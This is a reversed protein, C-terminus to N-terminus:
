KRTYFLILYRIASASQGKQNRKAYKKMKQIEKIQIERETQQLQFEETQEHVNRELEVENANAVAAWNALPSPRREKKEKKTKSPSYAPPQVSDSVSGPFVPRGLSVTKNKLPMITIDQVAETHDFQITNNANKIMENIEMNRSDEPSLKNVLPPMDISITDKVPSDLTLDKAIFMLADHHKSQNPHNSSQSQKQLSQHYKLLKNVDNDSDGFGSEPEPSESKTKRSKESKQTDRRHGYGTKGQRLRNKREKEERFHDKKERQSREPQTHKISYGDSEPPYSSGCSEHRNAQPLPWDRSSNSHKSTGENNVLMEQSTTKKAHSSAFRSSPIRCEVAAEPTLSHKFGETIATPIPM